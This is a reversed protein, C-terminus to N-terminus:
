TRSPDAPAQPRLAWEGTRGTASVAVSKGAGYIASVLVRYKTAALLEPLTVHSRPGPISIQPPPPPSITVQADKSM